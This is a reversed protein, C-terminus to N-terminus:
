KKYLVKFCYEGIMYGMMWFGLLGFYHFFGTTYNFRMNILICVVLTITLAKIM